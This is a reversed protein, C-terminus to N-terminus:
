TSLERSKTIQNQVTVFKEKTFSEPVTVNFSPLKGTLSVQYDREQQKILTVIEEENQLDELAKNLADVAYNWM